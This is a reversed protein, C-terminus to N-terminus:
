LQGTNGVHIRAAALLARQAAGPDLLRIEKLIWQLADAGTALALPLANGPVLREGLDRVLDDIGRQLAAGAVDVHRLAGEGDNGVVRVGAQRVEQSGDLRVHRRQRAVK